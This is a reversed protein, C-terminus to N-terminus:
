RRIWPRAKAALVLSVVALCSIAAQAARSAVAGAALCHSAYGNALADTVLVAAVLDLGARPRSILLWAAVPDLVTLSVFYVALWTPAWPHPPWGAALQVVHVVGGYGLVLTQGAGGVVGRPVGHWRRRWVVGVRAMTGPM